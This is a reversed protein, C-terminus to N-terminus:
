SQLEAFANLVSALKRAAEPTFYLVHYGLGLNFQVIVSGSDGSVTISEQSESKVTKEAM